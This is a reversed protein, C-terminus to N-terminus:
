YSNFEMTVIRSDPKVTISRTWVFAGSDDDRMEDIWTYNGDPDKGWQAKIQNIFSAGPKKNLRLVMSAFDDPGYPHWEYSIIEFSPFTVGTKEKLEEPTSYGKFRFLSSYDYSVSFGKEDVSLKVTVHDPFSDDPKNMYRNDWGRTFCYKNEGHATKSTSSTTNWFVNETELCKRSLESFFSDTQENLFTYNAFVTGELPDKWCNKYEFQPFEKIETLLVFDERTKFPLDDKDIKADKGIAVFFPILFFLTLYTLIAAPSILTLVIRLWQQKIVGRKKAQFPFVLSITM